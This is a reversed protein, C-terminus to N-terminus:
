GSSGLDLLRVPMAVFPASRDTGPAPGPGTPWCWIGDITAACGFFQGVDIHTARPLGTVEYTEIAPAGPPVVRFCVVSGDTRLACAPALRARVMTADRVVTRWEASTEDRVVVSGDATLVFGRAADVAGPATPSTVPATAGEREQAWCTRTASGSYLCVEGLSIEVGTPPSPVEVLPGVVGIAPAPAGSTSPLDIRVCEVRSGGVACLVQGSLFTREVEITFPVVLEDAAGVIATCRVDRDLRCVLSDIAVERAAHHVHRPPDIREIDTPSRMFGGWCWVDEGDAEACAGLPEVVSVRVSSSTAGATHAAYCGASLLAGLSALLRALMVAASTRATARVARM